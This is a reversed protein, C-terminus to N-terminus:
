MHTESRDGTEEDSINDPAEVIPANAVASEGAFSAHEKALLSMTHSTPMTTYKVLVFITPM